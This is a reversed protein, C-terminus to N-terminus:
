VRAASDPRSRRTFLDVVAIAGRAQVDPPMFDRYKPTIKASTDRPRKLEAHLELEFPVFPVPPPDAAPAQVLM